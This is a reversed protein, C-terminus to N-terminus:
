LKFRVDNSSTYFKARADKIQKNIESFIKDVQEQSYKYTRRNACNGLLRLKSLLANTRAEAVRRFREDPTEKRTMKLTEQAELKFINSM